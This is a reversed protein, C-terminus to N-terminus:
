RTDGIPLFWVEANVGARLKNQRNEVRLKVGIVQHVREEKTQVNRPLFEAQQRIQEVTAPFSEKGYTDVRVEAKQGVQVRGIQTQPVYVMVYLQDAELLRAIVANAPMLDGPRVDLVEVVAATPARVEREVYRAEAEKLSGEALLVEARAAAIEESRFGKETLQEAAKSAKHRDQTARLAAAASEVQARTTKLRTEMEDRVQRSTVGEEFLQEARKYEIEANAADARASELNAQATAVEQAGSGATARAQAIEEPRYGRRLKSLNAKAQDLRGRAQIVRAELEEDDFAVLLQNAAVRDGERALVQTIRGGVKSGVNINRAELTGSASLQKEKRWGCSTATVAFAIAVLAGVVVLRHKM